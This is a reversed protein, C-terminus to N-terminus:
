DLCLISSSVLELSLVSGIVKPEPSSFIMVVEGRVKLKVRYDKGYFVCEVVTGSIINEPDAVDICAMPVPLILLTVREGKRCERGSGKAPTFVGASTELRLPDTSLVVGDLFNSMGLFEAVPRDKPALYVEEPRGYQEIRGNILLAVKDGLLLAEEQDHTVYVAPIGTKQLLGRLEDQLEMRLARDLASLPEDLLLLCPRPALARALAVRQQEGGSLDTVRRKGFGTMNVQDLAEEVRKQIEVRPLDRMKLGFGVNEAVSRHPFLAYDQFMFGFNRRFAPMEGVDQGNWCIEGAQAKEIGAIIRLLTSKGSGSRGLLCLTEGSHVELTVGKLLPKGEYDKFISKIELLDM